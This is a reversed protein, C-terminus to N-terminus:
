KKFKFYELYMIKPIYYFESSLRKATKTPETLLRWLWELRFKLMIKPARRITEAFFPFAAGVSVILGKNIHPFLTYSFIEQKPAGLSVWIFHPNEKNIIEAITLYDFANVECFPLEMFIMNNVEPDIKVLNSKLKELTLKDTGIFISKYIKKKIASIFFDPGPLASINSKTTFSLLKAIISGDCINFISSQLILKYHPKKYSMALLNANITCIYGKTDSYFLEDCKSFIFKGGFLIKINFIEKETM